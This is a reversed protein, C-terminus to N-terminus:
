KAGGKKGAFYGGIAGVVLGILVSLMDINGLTGSDKKDPDVPPVTTIEQGFLFLAFCVLLLTFILSKKMVSPTKITSFNPSFM